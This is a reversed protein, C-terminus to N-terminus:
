ASFEEQKLHTKTHLGDRTVVGLLLVVELEMLTEPKSTMSLSTSCTDLNLLLLPTVEQPTKEELNTEVKQIIVVAELIGNVTVQRYRM